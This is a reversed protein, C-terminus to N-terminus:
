WDDGANDSIVAASADSWRVFVALLNGAAVSDPLEARLTTGQSIHASTHQVESPTVSSPNASSGAIRAAATGLCLLAIAVGIIPAKLWPNISTRRHRARHIVRGM